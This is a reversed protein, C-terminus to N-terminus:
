EDYDTLSNWVDNRGEIYEECFDPFGHRETTNNEQCWERYAARLEADDSLNRKFEAIAIDVSDSQQLLNIFYDTLNEIM